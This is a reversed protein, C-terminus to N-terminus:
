LREKSKTWIKQMENSCSIYCDDCNAGMPQANESLPELHVERGMTEYLQKAETLRPEGCTFQKEWGATKLKEDAFSQAIGCLKEM